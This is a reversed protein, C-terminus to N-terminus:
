GAAGSAFPAAFHALGIALEFAVAQGNRATRRGDVALSVLRGAAAGSWALGAVLCGDTSGEAQWLAAAGIELALFLGGYTARVEALGEPAAEALGVFSLIGRPAVLGALGLAAGTLLGLWSVIQM